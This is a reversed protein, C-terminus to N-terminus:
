ITKTRKFISSKKRMVSFNSPTIPFSFFIFSILTIYFSKLFLKMLRYDCIYLQYRCLHFLGFVMALLMAGKGFSMNKFVPRKTQTDLCTAISTCKQFGSWIDPKRFLGTNVFHGMIM